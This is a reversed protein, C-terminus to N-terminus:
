FWFHGSTASKCSWIESRQKRGLALVTAHQARDSASRPSPLSLFSALSQKQSANLAAKGHAIVDHSYLIGCFRIGQSPFFYVCCGLCFSGTSCAQFANAPCHPFTQWTNGSISSLRQPSPPHHPIREAAPRSTVIAVAREVDARRTEGFAVRLSSGRCGYWSARFAWHPSFPVSSSAWLSESVEVSDSGRTVATSESFKLWYRHLVSSESVRLAPNGAAM